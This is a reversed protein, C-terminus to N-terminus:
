DDLYEEIAEIGKESIVKLEQSASESASKIRRKKEKAWKEFAIEKLMKEM